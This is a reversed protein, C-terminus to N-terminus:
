WSSCYSDTKEEYIGWWEDSITSPLPSPVTRCDRSRGIRDTMAHTCRMSIKPTGKFTSNIALRKHGCICETDDGSVVSCLSAVAGRRSRCRQPHSTDINRARSVLTWLLSTFATSMERGMMTTDTQEQTTCTIINIGSVRSWDIDGIVIAIELATETGTAMEILIGSAAALGLLARSTWRLFRYSSDKWRATSHAVLYPTYLPASNLFRPGRPARRSTSCTAQSYTIM